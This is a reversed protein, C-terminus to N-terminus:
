KGLWNVLREFPNRKEKGKNVVYEEPTEEKVWTFNVAYPIELKRCIGKFKFVEEFNYTQYMAVKKIEKGQIEETYFYKLTAKQKDQNEM